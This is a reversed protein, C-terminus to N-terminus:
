NDIKVLKFNSNFIQNVTKFTKFKFFPYIKVKNM